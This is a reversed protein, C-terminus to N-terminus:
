VSDGIVHNFPFFIYPVAHHRGVLVLGAADSVQRSRDNLPQPQDVAPVPDAGDASPSMARFQHNDTSPYPMLDAEGYIRCRQALVAPARVPRM